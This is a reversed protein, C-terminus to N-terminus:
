LIVEKGLAEEQARLQLEYIEPYIKGESLLQQHTGREAIKGRHLVLIQDADKVTQLRQAIVFTTRGKMLERLAKQLIFETETDVSSTSDDLILIRPDLLLTRAIALRQRQGGSLTVGREGVWTDYGERLTMIYDHLQATKAAAIIQAETAEVAGYSINDRITASFLFVDQQVMGINRRLSTLTVDRTDIGDITIRGASVDYFRPILNVLTTKGSGTAGLLAVMEGPKAELNINELINAAPEYPNMADYRFSVNDFKVLGRAGTLPVANPKEKVASETDLIEFIREGASIGRSVMNVMFGLMRVPMVLMAVYLYFQTLGGVTLQGHIIQNGGYWIIAASSLGFFLTMMPGSFAQIRASALTDDYIKLAEKEFKATEYRQRSFVKVVRIGSLAEQLVISMLAMEQQIRLWIPRLRTGMKIAIFAVPPLVALSILALQWDMFLMIGAITLVTALVYIARVSGMAVFMRVAEVDQTARSMLQGTQAKDHFAFSLRQIRDYLRNRLDYAVKQGMFESLYGQGFAFIGRLVSAGIIAAGMMWLIHTDHATAGKDIATRLLNPIALSM